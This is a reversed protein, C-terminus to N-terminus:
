YLGEDEDFGHKRRIWSELAASSAPGFEREFMVLRDAAEQPRYKEMLDRESYARFLMWDILKFHYRPAIEVQEEDGDITMAELPERCVTLYMTDDADPPDILRITRQGVPMWARPPASAADEWGPAVRDAMLEDVKPLRDTQSALKVRRIFMIRADVDYTAKDVKVAIKTVSTTRDNDILRARRCAEMRGENLYVLLTDDPWLYPPGVTDHSLRRFQQIMEKPTM